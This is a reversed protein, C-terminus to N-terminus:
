EVGQGDSLLAWFAINHKGGNATTVTHRQTSINFGMDRIESIRKTPCFCDLKEKAEDSNIHQHTKLYELIRANQSAASNHASMNDGGRKIYINPAQVAGAM